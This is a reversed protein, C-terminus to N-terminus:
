KSRGATFWADIVRVERQDPHVRFIVGLPPAFAIRRGRDRSEGKEQADTRLMEEIADFADIGSQPRGAATWEKVLRRFARDDWIVRYNV